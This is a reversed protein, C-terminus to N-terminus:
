SIPRGISQNYFKYAEMQMTTTTPQDRVLPISKSRRTYDVFCFEVDFEILAGYKYNRIRMWISGVM